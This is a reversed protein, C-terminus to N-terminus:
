LHTAQRYADLAGDTDGVRHLAYAHNYHAEPMLPAKQAADQWLTIDSQWIQGRQLSLGKFLLYILYIYEPRIQQIPSALLLSLAFIELYLRHDNVLIHLPLLLTPSLVGVTFLPVFALLAPRARAILYALSAIVGLSLLPVLQLASESVFFQQQINLDVPM